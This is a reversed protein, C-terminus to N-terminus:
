AGGQGPRQGLGVVPIPNERFLYVDDLAGFEQKLSQEEPLQVFVTTSAIFAVRFCKHSFFVPHLDRTTWHHLIRQRTGGRSWSSEM